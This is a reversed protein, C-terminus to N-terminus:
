TVVGCFYEYQFTITLKTISPDIDDDLNILQLNFFFIPKTKIVIEYPRIKGHDVENYKPHPHIKLRRILDRYKLDTDIPEVYGYEIGLGYYFYM